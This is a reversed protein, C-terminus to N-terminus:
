FVFWVPDLCGFFSDDDPMPRDTSRYLCSLSCDDNNRAQPNFFSPSENIQRVRSSRLNLVVIRRDNERGRERSLFLYLCLSNSLCVAPIFGMGGREGILVHTWAIEPGSECLGESEGVVVVLLVVVM